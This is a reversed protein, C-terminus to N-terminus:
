RFLSVADASLDAKTRAALTMFDAIPSNTIYLKSGTIKWGGDVKNARTKM